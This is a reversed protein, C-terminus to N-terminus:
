FNATLSPNWAHLQYHKTQGGISLRINMLAHNNLRFLYTSLLEVKDTSESISTQYTIIVSNQELRQDVKKLKIPTDNLSLQVNQLFYEGACVSMMEEPKCSAEKKLGYALSRKDLVAIVTLTNETHDIEIEGVVENHLDLQAPNLALTLILLLTNM